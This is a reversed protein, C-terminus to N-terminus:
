CGGGPVNLVTQMVGKYVMRITYSESEYGLEESIIYERNEISLLGLPNIWRGEKGDCDTLIMDAAIMRYQQGNSLVWVNFLSEAYCDYTEQKKPQEYQRVISIFYIAQKARETKMRFIKKPKIPKHIRENKLTPHGTYLPRSAMRIAEEEALDFKKQLLKVLSKSEGSNLDVMESAWGKTLGSTVLGEKIKPSFFKPTRTKGVFSTKLGWAGSCHSRFEVAEEATLKDQRSGVRLLRWSQPIKGGGSLWKSPIKDLPLTKPLPEGSDNTFHGRIAPEPWSTRWKASHYLGVPIIIGDERLIGVWAANKETSSAPVVVWCSIILIWIAFICVGKKVMSEAQPM